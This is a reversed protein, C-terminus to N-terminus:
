TQAALWVAPSACLKNGSLNHQHSMCASAVPSCSMPSAFCESNFEESGTHVPGHGNKTTYDNFYVPISLSMYLAAFVFAVYGHDVVGSGMELWLLCQLSVDVFVASTSPHLSPSRVLASSSSTARRTKTLTSCRPSASPLLSALCSVSCDLCWPKPCRPLSAASSGQLMSRCRTFLQSNDVMIDATLMGHWARLNACMWVQPKNIRVLSASLSSSALEGSSSGGHDWGRSRCRESTRMTHLPATPLAGCGRWAAGWM